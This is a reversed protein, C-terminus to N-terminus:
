SATGESRNRPLWIIADIEIDFGILNNEVTTRTPFPRTFTKACVADWVPFDAQDRLYAGIKVADEIRGGAAKAVASINALTAIAQEEFTEGVLAGTADFPGQGSVFLFDGAVIGQSYTGGPQAADSTHVETRV